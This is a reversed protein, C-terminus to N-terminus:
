ACWSSTRSWGHSTKEVEPQHFITRGNAIIPIEATEPQLQRIALLASRSVLAQSQMELQRAAGAIISRYCLASLSQLYLTREIYNQPPM